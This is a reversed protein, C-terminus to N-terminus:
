PLVKCGDAKAKAVLETIKVTSTLLSYGSQIHLHTYVNKRGGKYPMNRKM